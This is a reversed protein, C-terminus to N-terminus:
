FRFNAYLIVGPWNQGSNIGGMAGATFRGRTYSLGAAPHMGTGNIITGASIGWRSRTGVPVPYDAGALVKGDETSVQIRKGDKTDLELIQVRMTKLPELPELDVWAIRAVTAGSPIAPPPTAPPKTTRELILSGPGLRHEPLPRYAVSLDAPHNGASGIWWGALFAALSALVWARVTM